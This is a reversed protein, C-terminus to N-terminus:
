DIGLTAVLRAFRSDTRIPDLRPELALNAIAPDCEVIARDLSAFAGDADGLGVQALAVHYPARCRQGDRGRLVAVLEIAGARDGSVAKAHALWSASVVDDPDRAHASELVRVAEL